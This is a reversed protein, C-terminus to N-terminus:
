NRGPTSSPQSALSGVLRQGMESVDRAAGVLEFYLEMAERLAAAGRQFADPPLAGVGMGGALRVMPGVEALAREIVSAGTVVSQALDKAEALTGAEPGSSIRGEAALQELRQSVREALPALRAALADGWDRTKVDAVCLTGLIQGQCTIPVGLYARIGYTQAIGQPLDPRALIDPVAFPKESRVVFQCYSHCRSTARSLDLEPPLGCGARFFQVHGMVFTVLSIPAEAYRAAERACEELVEDRTSAVVAGQFRSLRIPDDLNAM